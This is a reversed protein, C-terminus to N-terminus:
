LNYPEKKNKNLEDLEKRDDETYFTEMFWEKFNLSSNSNKAQKWANTMDKYWEYGGTDNALYLKNRDKLDQMILQWTNEIKTKHIYNNLFDNKIISKEFTEIFLDANKISPKGFENTQYIFYKLQLLSNNELEQEM